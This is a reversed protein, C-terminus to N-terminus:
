ASGIVVVVVAAVVIVGDVGAAVDIAVDDDDIGTVIGAFVVTVVIGVDVAFVPVDEVVGAGVLADEVVDAVVTDVDIVDVVVNSGVVCVAVNVGGVAGVAVVALLTVVPRGGDDDDDDACVLEPVDVRVGPVVPLLEARSSNSFSLSNVLHRIMAITAQIM